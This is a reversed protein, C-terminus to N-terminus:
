EFPRPIDYLTLEIVVDGNDYLRYVNMDNSFSELFERDEWYSEGLDRVVQSDKNIPIIIKLIGNGSYFELEGETSEYWNVLFESDGALSIVGSQDNYDYKRKIGTM